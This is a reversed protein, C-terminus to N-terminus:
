GLKHWSGGYYGYFGAGSGPNWDTGDALVITGTVLKVPAAHSTAIFLEKQPTETDTIFQNITNQVWNEVDGLRGSFPRTKFFAM